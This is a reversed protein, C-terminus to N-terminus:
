LGWKLGSDAGCGSCDKWFTLKTMGSRASFGETAGWKGEVPCELSCVGQSQNDGM